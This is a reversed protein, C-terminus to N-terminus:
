QEEEGVRDLVEIAVAFAYREHADTVRARIYDGPTLTGVPQPDVFLVFGRHKAIYRHKGEEPSAHITVEVTDGQEVPAGDGPGRVEDPGKHEIHHTDLEDQTDFAAGCDACVYESKDEPEPEPEPEAQWVVEDGEWLVTAVTDDFLDEGFAARLYRVMRNVTHPHVEYSEAIRPANVGYKAEIRNAESLVDRLMMRRFWPPFRGAPVGLSRDRDSLAIEHDTETEHDNDDDM